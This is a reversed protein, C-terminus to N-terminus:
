DIYVWKPKFSVSKRSVKDFENRLNKVYVMDPTNDSRSVLITGNKNAALKVKEGKELRLRAVDFRMVGSVLTDINFNKM